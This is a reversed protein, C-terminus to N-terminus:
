SFIEAQLTKLDFENACEEAGTACIDVAPELLRIQWQMSITQTCMLGNHSLAELTRDGEM